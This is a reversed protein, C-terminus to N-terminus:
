RDALARDVLRCLEGGDTPKLLHIDFGAARALAKDAPQGRGTLAVLIPTPGSMRKLRRCAEYGDMVPMNIDLIALDPHFSQALEVAQEGNYATRTEYRSTELLMALTDAADVNDDAILIRAASLQAATKAQFDIGASSQM